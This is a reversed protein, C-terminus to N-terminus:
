IGLSSRKRKESAWDEVLETLFVTAPVALIIGVVGALAGGALLSIIIIAPHIGVQQTMVLPILVHNELQQIVLFVFLTYVALNFSQSLAVLVSIAGAFIPGVIPILELIAALVGLLFAYPVGLVSMAIWVSAGIGLSLLIQARLWRGIKYKTRKFVAIAYQEYRNPLIALLFREVGDHSVTLYFSLILVSLFLAAGGLFSSAIGFLSAGGGLLLNNVSTIRDNIARSIDDFYKGGLLTSSSININNLFNNFEIIMVPVAKYLVAVLLTLVLLYLILTGLLRHIRWKHLFTVLPDFASAIVIALAVAVLVERILYAMVTLTLVLVVRLISNWSIEVTQSEVM